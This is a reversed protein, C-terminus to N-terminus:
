KMRVFWRQIKTIDLIFEKPMFNNILYKFGAYKKWSASLFPIYVNRHLFGEVIEIAPDFIDPRPENLGKTIDQRIIGPICGLINTRLFRRYLAKIQISYQDDMLSGCEPCKTARPEPVNIECHLCTMKLGPSCQKFKKVAQYFFGIQEQALSCCFNKLLPWGKSDDALVQQFTSISKVHDYWSVRQVPRRKEPEIEIVIRQQKKRKVKFVEKSEVIALSISFHKRGYATKRLLAIEQWLKSAQEFRDYDLLLQAFDKAMSTFFGDTPDFCRKSIVFARQINDVASQIKGMKSYAKSLLILAFILIVHNDGFRKEQMELVNGALVVCEKVHIESNSVYQEGLLLDSPRLYVSDVILTNDIFAAQFIEDIQRSSSCKDIEIDAIELQSMRIQDLHKRFTHFTNISARIQVQKADENKIISIPPLNQIVEKHMNLSRSLSLSTSRTSEILTPLYGPEKIATSCTHSYSPSVHNLNRIWELEKNTEYEDFTDDDIRVIMDAKLVVQKCKAADLLEVIDFHKGAVALIYANLGTSTEHGLNANKGLLIQVVEKHGKFSGYMLCNWENNDTLHIDANFNHVLLRVMRPNGTACASMLATQKRRNQFNISAGLSIVLEVVKEFKNFKVYYGLPTQGDNSEYDPKCHGQCVLQLLKSIDQPKEITDCMVDSKKITVDFLALKELYELVSWKRAKTAEALVNTGVIQANHALLFKCCEMVLDFHLCEMLPSKGDSNIRNVDAGKSVLHRAVTHIRGLKLSATLATRGDPLELDVIAGNSILCDIILFDGKCCSSILPRTPNRKSLFNVGAGLEILRQVQNVQGDFIVTTLCTSGASTEFNPDAGMIICNCMKVFDNSAIAYSLDNMM